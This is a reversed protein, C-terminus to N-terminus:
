NFWFRIKCPLVVDMASTNNYLMNIQQEVYFVGYSLHVFSMQGYSLLVLILHVFQIKLGTYFAFSLFILNNCKLRM